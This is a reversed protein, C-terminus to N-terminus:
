SIRLKIVAEHVCMCGLRLNEEVGWFEVDWLKDDLEPDKFEIDFSVKGEGHANVNVESDVKQLAAILEKITYVRM